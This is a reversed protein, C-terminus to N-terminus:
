ECLKSQLIERKEKTLNFEEAFYTDYDTYKEKIKDITLLLNEKTVYLFNDCFEKYEASINKEKYFSYVFSNLSENSKMFESIADEENMDLVMMILFTAIGTRDKGASCHYYLAGDENLLIEFMRVYAQNGFPMHTYGDKLYDIM